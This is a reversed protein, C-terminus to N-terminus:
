VLWKCDEFLPNTLSPYMKGDFPGRFRGLHLFDLNTIKGNFFDGFAQGILFQEFKCHLVDLREAPARNWEMLPRRDLNLRLILLLIRQSRELLENAFAVDLDLMRGLVDFSRDM